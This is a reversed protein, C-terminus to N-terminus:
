ADNLASLMAATDIFFAMESVRGQSVTWVHCEPIDFAVGSSRVTGSTRGFQIVQNGAQFLAAPTVTSDITGVLALAFQAIGDAGAHRGGWPLAPDQTLVVDPHCLEAFAALDKAALAAYAAEVVQLPVPTPDQRAMFLVAEQIHTTADAYARPSSRDSYEM